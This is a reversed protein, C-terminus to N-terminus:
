IPLAAPFFFNLEVSRPKGQVISELRRHGWGIRGPDFPLDFPRIMKDPFAEPSAISKDASFRGVPIKESPKLFLFFADVACGVFHDRKAKVPLLGM